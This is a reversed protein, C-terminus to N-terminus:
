LTVTPGSTSILALETDTDCSDDACQQPMVLSAHLDLRWGFTLVGAQARLREDDAGLLLPMASNFSCGPGADDDDVSIEAAATPGSFTLAQAGRAGQLRRGFLLLPPRDVTSASHGSRGRQREHLHGGM